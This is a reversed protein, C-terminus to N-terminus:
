PAVGRELDADAPEQVSEEVYYGRALRDMEAFDLGLGDCLHRLDCLADRIAAAPDAQADNYGAMLSRKATARRALKPNEQLIEETIEAPIQEFARSEEAWRPGIGCIAVLEERNTIVYTGEAAWESWRDIVAQTDEGTTAAVQEATIIEGSMAAMAQRVGIAIGDLIGCKNAKITEIAMRMAESCARGTCLAGHGQFFERRIAEHGITYNSGIINGMSDERITSFNAGASM